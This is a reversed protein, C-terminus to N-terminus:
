ISNPICVCSVRKRNFLKGFNLFIYKNEYLEGSSPLAKPTIVEKLTGPMSHKVSCLQCCSWVINPQNHAPNKKNTKLVPYMVECLTFLSINFQSM